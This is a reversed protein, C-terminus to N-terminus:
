STDVLQGDVIISRWGELDKSAKIRRVGAEILDGIREGDEAPLKEALLGLHKAIMDVAHAQDCVTVSITEGFKTPTVKIAKLNLRQDETLNSLDLDGLKGDKTIKFYDLPSAQSQSLWRKFIYDAEIGADIFLKALMPTLIKVVNPETLLRHGEVKATGDTVNPSVAKYAAAANMSNKILEKCFLTRDIRHKAIARAKARPAAKNNTKKAKKAAPKKRPRANKVPKGNKVAALQEYSVM